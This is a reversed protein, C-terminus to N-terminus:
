IPLKQAVYITVPSLSKELKWSYKEADKGLPNHTELLQMNSCRIIEQYDEATWFYDYISLNIDKFLIKVRSGSSLEINEEFETNETLWDNNYTDENCVIMIFIGNPKLVRHIEQGIKMLESKSSVEMMVWSSFVLDYSNEYAPINGSTIVAYNGDIDEIAAHRIMDKNIDVGSVNLGLTKLFQTSKGCGCGYDLAAKGKVYKQVLQKIDRFALYQTGTIELKAYEDAYRGAEKEYDIDIYKM